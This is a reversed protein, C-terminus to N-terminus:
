LFTHEKGDSVTYKEIGEYQKEKGEALQRDIQQVMRAKEPPMFLDERAGVM